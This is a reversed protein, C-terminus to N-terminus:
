KKNYKSMYKDIGGSLLLKIIKEASKIMTKVKGKENSSFDSLVYDEAGRYGKMKSRENASFSQKDKIKIPKGIGLRIGLFKEGVTEIINEVGKHGGSGGGM